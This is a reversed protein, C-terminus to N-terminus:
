YNQYRVKGCQAYQNERKLDIKVKSIHKALLKEYAAKKEESVNKNLVKFMYYDVEGNKTFYIRNFVSISSDKVNWSFNNEKVIKGIQRHFDRWTKAVEAYEEKTSNQPILLNRYHKDLELKKIKSYELENQSNVVMTKHKDKCSVCMVLAIISIIKKM